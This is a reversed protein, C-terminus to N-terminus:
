EEKGQKSSLSRKHHSQLQLLAAEVQLNMEDSQMHEPLHEVAFFNNKVAQGVIDQNNKLDESAFMVAEGNQSIAKMVIEKNNKLRESAYELACGNSAVAASVIGFDDKFSDTYYLAEGDQKVAAMVVEKTKKLEESAFLLSRGDKRVAAMVVEKTNKLAESADELAYGDKSVRHIMKVVDDPLRLCRLELITQNKNNLLDKLLLADDELKKDNFILRVSEKDKELISKLEGVTLNTDMKEEILTEGNLKYVKVEIKEHNNQQKTVMSNGCIKSDTKRKKLSHDEFNTQQRKINM